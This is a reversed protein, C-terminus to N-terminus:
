TGEGYLKDLLQNREEVTSRKGYLKDLLQNREEVTSRWVDMLHWMKGYRSLTNRKLGPSFMASIEAEDLAPKGEMVANM